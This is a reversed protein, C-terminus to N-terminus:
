RAVRRGVCVRCCVRSLVRSLVCASDCVCCCVRSLVCSPVRCLCSVEGLESLLVKTHASPGKAERTKTGTGAAGTEGRAEAVAHSGALWPACGAQRADCDGAGAGAGACARHAPHGCVPAVGRRAHRRGARGGGVAGPGQGPAHGRQQRLGSGARHWRGHGHAARRGCPGAARAAARGPPGDGGAADGRTCHAAHAVMLAICDIHVCADTQYPRNHTHHRALIRVVHKFAVTLVM